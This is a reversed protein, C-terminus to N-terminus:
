RMFETFSLRSLRSTVTYFTELQTFTAELESAVRYPDVAILENRALELSTAKAANRVSATEVREQLQGIDARFATLGQDATLMMEGSTRLLASQEAPDGALVGEAVLAALAFSEMVKRLAPDDARYGPQIVEGEGLQFAAADTTSGLYGNTEFGGSPANFWTDVAAIVGAATTEGAVAVNLSSLMDDASALAARDTAAGGFLTRGAVNTNLSAVISQFRQRADNALIESTQGNASGQASALSAGLSRGAEQVQDLVNQMSETIVAAEATVTKTAQLTTLLREIDSVPGFDGSVAKGLDAQTGTTLERGLRTLDTKLATTLTRSQFVRALDGISVLSM